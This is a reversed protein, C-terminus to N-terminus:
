YFDTGAQKTIKILQKAIKVANEVRADKYESTLVTSRRKLKRGWPRLSLVDKSKLSSETKYPLNMESM